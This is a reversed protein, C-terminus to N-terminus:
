RDSEGFRMPSAPKALDDFWVAFSRAVDADELSLFSLGGAVGSVDDGIEHMQAALGSTGLGCKCRRDALSIGLCKGLRLGLHLVGTALSRFEGKGALRRIRREVEGVIRGGHFM